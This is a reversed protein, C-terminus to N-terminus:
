EFLRDTPDLLVHPNLAGAPDLAAAAARLVRVGTEGIERALWPAHWAGVGHHHSLTLGHRVLTENASRKLRAWRAVAPEPEAPTRYFCTFYLSAGDPYPHSLHCLVAVREGEAELATALEVGVDRHAAELRSWPAATELTETAYGADLLSDRLYPHRFRDALWRRGPARGLPVARHRALEARTAALARRCQATEGAAGALLMCGAGVGRAALYRRGLAGM